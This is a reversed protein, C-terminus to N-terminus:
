RADAAGRQARVPSARGQVADAAPRAPSAVLGGTPGMLYVLEGRALGLNLEHLVEVDAYRMAVNYLRLM